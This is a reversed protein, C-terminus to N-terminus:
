DAKNSIAMKTSSTLQSVAELKLFPVNSSSIKAKILTGGPLFDGLCMEPEEKQEMSKTLSYTESLRENNDYLAINSSTHVNKVIGVKVLFDQLGGHEMSAQAVM